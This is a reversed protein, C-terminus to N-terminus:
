YPLFSVLPFQTWKGWCLTPFSRYKISPLKKPNSHPLKQKKDCLNEPKTSPSKYTPSKPNDLILRLVRTDPPTLPVSGHIAGSSNFPLLLRTESFTPLIIYIDDLHFFFHILWFCLKSKSLNINEWKANRHPLDQSPLFRICIHM